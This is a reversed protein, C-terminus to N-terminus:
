KTSLIFPHSLLQEATYRSAPDITMAHALFDRLQTPANSPLAPPETLKAIAFMMAMHTEFARFPHSGTAMEITTIGLSWVDGSRQPPNSQLAEPAM